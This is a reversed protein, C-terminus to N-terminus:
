KPNGYLTLDQDVSWPSVSNKRKQWRPTGERTKVFVRADPYYSTGEPKPLVTMFTLPERWELVIEAVILKM